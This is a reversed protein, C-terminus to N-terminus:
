QNDSTESNNENLVDESHISGFDDDSKKIVVENQLRENERLEVEKEFDSISMSVLLIVFLLLGVIFALKNGKKLAWYTLMFPFFITWAIGKFFKM